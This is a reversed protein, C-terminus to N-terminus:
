GARLIKLMAASSDVRMVSKAAAALPLGYGGTGCGIDLLAKRRLEVGTPAPLRLIRRTKKLTAPQFPPPCSLARSNWFEKQNEPTTEM